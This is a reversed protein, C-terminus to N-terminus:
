FQSLFLLVSNKYMERPAVHHAAPLCTIEGLPEPTGQSVDAAEVEEEEEEERVNRSQPSCNELIIHPFIENNM